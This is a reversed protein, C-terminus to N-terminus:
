DHYIFVNSKKRTEKACEADMPRFSAAVDAGLSRGVHHRESSFALHASFFPFACFDHDVVHSGHATPRSDVGILFFFHFGRHHICMCATSGLFIADQDKSRRCSPWRCFRKDIKACASSLDPFVGVCSANFPARSKMARTVPTQIGRWSKERM